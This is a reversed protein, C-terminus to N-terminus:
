KFSGALTKIKYLVDLAIEIVNEVDDTFTLHDKVAEILKDKEKPTLDEIENICNSIGGLGSIASPIIPILALAIGIPGIVWGGLAIRYVSNTVKAVFKIAQVTDTIGVIDIQPKPIQRVRKLVIGKGRSNHLGKLKQPYAPRAKLNKFQFNM